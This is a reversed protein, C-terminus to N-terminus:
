QKQQEKTKGETSKETLDRRTYYNSQMDIKKLVARALDYSDNEIRDIYLRRNKASEGLDKMQRELELLNDMTQREDGQKLFVYIRDNVKSKRVAVKPSSVSAIRYQRLLDDDKDLLRQQPSEKNPDPPMEVVIIANDALEANCLTGDYVSVCVAQSPQYKREHLKERDAKTYSYGQRSIIEQLVQNKTELDDIKQMLPYLGVDLESIGWKSGLRHITDIENQLHQMYEEYKKVEEKLSDLKLQQVKKNGNVTAGNLISVEYGLREKVFESLRPHMNDLYERSVLENCCLRDVKGGHEEFFKRNREYHRSTPSTNIKEESKVPVFDLHIHPTKEDKHVVANVINHEGFDKAYFDYVAKFFKTEEESDEKIEPPLTVIMEGLVVADKRKVYMYVDKLRKGVDEPSGEKLHYNKWTRNNDISENSHVVGNDPSRNNHLFLFGVANAAFKDFSAM